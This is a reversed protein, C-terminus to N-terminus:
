KVIIATPTPIPAAVFAIIPLEIPSFFSLTAEKYIANSTWAWTVESDFNNEEDEVLNPASGFSWTLKISEAKGPISGTIFLAM